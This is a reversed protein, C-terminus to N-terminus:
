MSCIRRSIKTHNCFIKSFLKSTQCLEFQWGIFEHWKYLLSTKRELVTLYEYPSLSYVQFRYRYSVETARPFHTLAIGLFLFIFLFLSNFFRQFNGFSSCHLMVNVLHPTKKKCPYLMCICLSFHSNLM